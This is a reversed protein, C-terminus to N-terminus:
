QNLLMFRCRQCSWDVGDIVDMIAYCALDMEGGRDPGRSPLAAQGAGGGRASGEAWTCM